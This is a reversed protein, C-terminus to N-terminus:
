AGRGGHSRDRGRSGREEVEMVTGARLPRRPLGPLRPWLVVLVLVLPVLVVVTPIVPEVVPTPANMLGHVGGAVWLNTTRLYVVGYFIGAVVLAALSAALAAGDLGAMLRRNPVHMLAFLAASGVVAGWTRVRPSGPLRIWLQPLVFGRYTAEELATMVVLMAALFALPAQPALPTSWIRAPRLAGDDLLSLAVLVLQMAVWLAATAVVGRGLKAGVLGVDRPRLRARLFAFPVLSLFFVLAGAPLNPDIWGASAERVAGAWRRDALMAWLVILQAAVVFFM